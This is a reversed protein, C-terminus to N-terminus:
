RVSFRAELRRRLLSVLAFGGHLLMAFVAIGIAFLRLREPLSHLHDAERRIVTIGETVGIAAGASSAM